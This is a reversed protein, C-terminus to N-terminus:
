KEVVVTGGLFDHVSRHRPHAFFTIIDALSYFGFLLNFLMALVMVGGAVGARPGMGGALYPNGAATALVLTSVAGALLNPLYRLFAGRWGVEGGDARRVQIETLRKGLTQGTTATLGIYYANYAVVWLASWLMIVGSGSSKLWFYVGMLPLLVLGDVILAGFRQGFSGYSVPVRPFRHPELFRPEVLREECRPCFTRSKHRLRCLPCELEQPAPPAAPTEVM